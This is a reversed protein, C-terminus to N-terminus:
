ARFAKFSLRMRNAQGRSFSDLCADYSYDMFNNVPDNGGAPCTDRNKAPCYGFNPSQEKPTDTVYDGKPGCRGQFTHYLGNWHGVEHTLTDGRSYAKGFGKIRDGPVTDDNIVVGDLVPREDYFQPFTAYGLLVGGQIEPKAFYVNLARAGGRRLASKMAREAKTGYQHRYWTPNRTVDISKLDFEFPTKSAGPAVRGRFGNNLVGMQKRLEERTVGGVNGKGKIIHVHVPVHFLRDDDNPADDRMAQVATRLERNMSQAQKASLTNPDKRAPTGKAVRSASYRDQKKCKVKAERDGASPAASATTSSPIATALLAVVGIGGIVLGRVRASTRSTM